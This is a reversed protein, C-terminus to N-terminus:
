LSFPLLLLLFLSLQSYCVNPYPSSSVASSIKVEPDPDVSRKVHGNETEQNGLTPIDSSLASESNSDDNPQIAGNGNTTLQQPAKTKKRRIIHVSPPLLTDQIAQLLL